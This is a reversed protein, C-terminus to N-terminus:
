NSSHQQCRVMSTTSTKGMSGTIGIVPGVCASRAATALAQLCRVTDDVLIVGCPLDTDVAASREVIVGAAGAAAAKGTFAHGGRLALFWQGPV